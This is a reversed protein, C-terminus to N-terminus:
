LTTKPPTPGTQGSKPATLRDLPVFGDSGPPGAAPPRCPPALLRGLLSRALWAAALLSIAIALADQMTM